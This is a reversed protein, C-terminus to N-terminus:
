NLEAEYPKYAEKDFFDLIAEQFYRRQFQNFHSKNSNGLKELGSKLKGMKHLGMFVKAEEKLVMPIYAVNSIPATWSKPTYFRIHRELYIALKEYSEAPKPHSNM